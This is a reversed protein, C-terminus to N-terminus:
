RGTRDAIGAHIDHALTGRSLGRHRLEADSLKSLGEYIAAAALREARADAWAAIRAAIAKLRRRLSFAPSRREAVAGPALHASTDM